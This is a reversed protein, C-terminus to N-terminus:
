KQKFYDVTEKLGIKIDVEPQWNLIKKAKTIDLYSKFLEGSRKAKHVPKPKYKIITALEKALQNVSFTKHTGINIIENNAKTLAKLNANVVDQVYVYDRLQKGDGFILVEQNQLMKGIFIAVVGAEGHPDQRPGYVNAYRLITYKLGYIANYCKIYHEVSLKAVGYPSLPNAFAIENPAKKSCEGYITGGSSAFIIKKVNNKRSAELVNITGKINVEADFSPDSVSKRVDLQAAHHIVIDIKENSFIEDIKKANTVSLKYFKAKPNINQKNGTSLDDVIVVEHKKDILADTINSGIFGAGGTVLIKM